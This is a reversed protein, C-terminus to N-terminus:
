LESKLDWEACMRKLHALKEHLYKYKPVDKHSQSEKGIREMKRWLNLDKPSSALLTELKTWETARTLVAEHLKCYEPYAEEFIVKYGKRDRSNKLPPYKSVFSTDVNPYIMLSKRPISVLSKKPTDEKWPPPLNLKLRSRPAQSLKNHEVNKAPVTKDTQKRRKKFPTSNSLEDPDQVKEEEEFDSLRSSTCSSTSYGSESPSISTRTSKETAVKGGDSRLEVGADLKPELHVSSSHRRKLKSRVEENRRSAPLRDSFTIKHAPKVAQFRDGLYPLQETTSSLAFPFASALGPLSLLGGEKTFQITPAEGGKAAEELAIVLETTLTVPLASLRPKAEPALHVTTAMGPSLPRAAPHPSSRCGTGAGERREPFGERAAGGGGATACHKV